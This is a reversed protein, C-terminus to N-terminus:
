RLTNFMMGVNSVRSMRSMQMPSFNFGSNLLNTSANGADVFAAPNRSVGEATRSLRSIFSTGDRTGFRELGGNEAAQNMRAEDIRMTGDQNLSIGIRQLETGFSQTLENLERELASGRGADRAARMLGNFSNVMDRFANIKALEDRGMALQTTGSGTLRAAMGFGLNVDNSRSTQLTGEASGRNVRFEANQAQQTIEGIGAAAVANGLVNTVTFNPQGENAVGTESSQLILASTGAATDLTISASVGIDSRGNIAAAIRQQVDRNTDNASVNFDINFQRDGVTIAIRNVGASFGSATARATSNLAAGENRQAKAVQNVEVSIDSLNISRLRNADFSRISLVDANEAAPRTAHFPSTVNRGVGRMRNLSQVMADSSNGLQSVSNRFAPSTTAMNQGLANNGSGFLTQGRNASVNNWWQANNLNLNSFNNVVRMITGRKM